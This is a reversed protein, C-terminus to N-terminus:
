SQEKVVVEKGRALVRCTSELHAGTEDDFKCLEYLDFDEPHQSMQNDAGKRNVEDSFSRLAVGLSPVYIPRGFGQVARDMVAVVVLVTM